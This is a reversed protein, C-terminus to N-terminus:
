PPVLAATVLRLPLRVVRRWWHVHQVEQGLELLKDGEEVDVEIYTLSQGSVDSLTPADDSISQCAFRNTERSRATKSCDMWSAHRM